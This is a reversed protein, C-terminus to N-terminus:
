HQFVHHRGTVNVHALVQEVGHQARRTEDTVLLLMTFVTELQELDEVQRANTVFAARTQRVARLASQLDHARERRLGCNSSSSSGAAPM